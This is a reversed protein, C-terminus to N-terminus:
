RFIRNTKCDTKSIKESGEDREIFNLITTEKKMRSNLKPGRKVRAASDINFRFPNKNHIFIFNKM